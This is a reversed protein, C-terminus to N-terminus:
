EFKFYFPFRRGGRRLEMFDRIESSTRIYINFREQTEVQRRCDTKQERIVEGVVNDEKPSVETM